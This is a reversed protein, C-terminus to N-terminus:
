AGGGQEAQRIAAEILHRLPEIALDLRSGKDISFQAIAKDVSEVAGRAAEEYKRILADKDASENWRKALENLITKQNEDPNEIRCVETEGLDLSSYTYHNYTEMMEGEGHVAPPKDMGNLRAVESDRPAAYQYCGQPSYVEHMKWGCSTDPDRWWGIFFGCNPMEFTGGKGLVVNDGAPPQESM